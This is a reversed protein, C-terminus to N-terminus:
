LVLPQSLFHRVEIAIVENFKCIGVGVGAHM